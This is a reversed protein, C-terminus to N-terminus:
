LVVELALKTLNIYVPILFNLSRITYSFAEHLDTPKATIAGFAQKDEKMVAIIKKLNKRKTVQKLIQSQYLSSYQKKEKM